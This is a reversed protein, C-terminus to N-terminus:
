QLARTVSLDVMTASVCQNDAVERGVVYTAGLSITDNVPEGHNGQRTVGRLFTDHYTSSAALLSQAQEATM